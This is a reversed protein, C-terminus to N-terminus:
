VGQVGEVAIQLPEVVSTDREGSVLLRIPLTTNSRRLSLVCRLALQASDLYSARPDRKFSPRIYSRNFGLVLVIAAGHLHTTFPPSSLEHDCAATPTVRMRHVVGCATALCSSARQEACRPWSAPM